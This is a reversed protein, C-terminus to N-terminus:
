FVLCCVLFFFFDCFTRTARVVHLWTLGRVGEQPDGLLAKSLNFGTKNIRNSQIIVGTTTSDWYGVSVQYCEGNMVSAEWSCHHCRKPACERNNSLTWSFVAM